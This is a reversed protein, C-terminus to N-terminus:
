RSSEQGTDSAVDLAVEFMAHLATMRREQPL